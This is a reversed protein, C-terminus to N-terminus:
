GIYKSGLNNHIINGYKEKLYHSMIEVIWKLYIDKFIIYKSSSRTVGWSKEM